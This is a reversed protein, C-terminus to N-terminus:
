KTLGGQEATSSGRGSWGCGRALGVRRIALQHPSRLPSSLISESDEDAIMLTVEIAKNPSLNSVIRNRLVEGLGRKKPCKPANVREPLRLLESPPKDTDGQINGV